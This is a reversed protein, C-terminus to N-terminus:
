PKQRSGIASRIKVVAAFTRDSQSHGYPRGPYECTRERWVDAANVTLLETYNDPKPKHQM